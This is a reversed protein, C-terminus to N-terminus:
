HKKHSSLKSIGLPALLVLGTILMWPQRPKPIDTDRAELIEQSSANTYRALMTEQDMSDDGLLWVFLLVGGIIALLMKM